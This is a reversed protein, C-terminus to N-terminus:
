KLGKLNLPNKKLDKAIIEYSSDDIVSESKCSLCTAKDKKFYLEFVTKKNCKQCYYKEKVKQDGILDKIQKKRMQNM